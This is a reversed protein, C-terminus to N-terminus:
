YDFALSARVTRKSGQADTPDALADIARANTLNNGVLTVSIHQTLAFRVKVALLGYGPTMLLDGKADQGRRPSVHEWSAGVSLRDTLAYDTAVRERWKPDTSMTGYTVGGSLVWRPTLHYSGRVELGDTEADNDTIERIDNGPDVLQRGHVDLVSVSTVPDAHCRTIGVFYACAVTAGAVFSLAATRSM